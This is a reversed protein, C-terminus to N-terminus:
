AEIIHNDEVLQSLYTLTAGPDCQVYLPLRGGPDYSADAASCVLVVMLRATLAEYFSALSVRYRALLQSGKVVLIPRVEADSAAWEQVAKRLAAGLVRQAEEQALPRSPLRAALEFLDLSSTKGPPLLASLGDAEGHWLYLHRYPPPAKLFVELLTAFEQRKM